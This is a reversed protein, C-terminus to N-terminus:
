GWGEQLLLPYFCSLSPMLRQQMVHFLDSELCRLGDMVFSYTHDYSYGLWVFIFCKDRM